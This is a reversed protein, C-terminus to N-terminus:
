LVDDIGNPTGTIIILQKRNDNKTMSLKLANSDFKRMYKGGLEAAKLQNKHDDVEVLVKVPKGNETYIVKLDVTEGEENKIEEALTVLALSKATLGRSVAEACSKLHVGAESLTKMDEELFDQLGESKTLARHASQASSYGAKEGAEKITQNPDKRLQRSLAKQKRTMKKKSAKKKTAKKKATKKKVAKKTVTKKSTTM